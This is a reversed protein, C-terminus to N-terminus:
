AVWMSIRTEAWTGFVDHVSCIAPILMDGLKYGNPLRVCLRHRFDFGYLRGCDYAITRRMSKTESMLVSM